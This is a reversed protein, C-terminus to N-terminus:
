TVNKNQWNKKEEYKNWWSAKLLSAFLLLLMWKMCEWSSCRQKNTQSKKTHLYCFLVFFQFLFEFWKHRANITCCCVLCGMCLRFVSQFNSSNNVTIVPKIFHVVFFPRFIIIKVATLQLPRRYLTSVFAIREVARERAAMRETSDCVYSLCAGNKNRKKCEM